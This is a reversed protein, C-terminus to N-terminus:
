AALINGRQTRVAALGREIQRLVVPSAKFRYRQFFRAPDDGAAHVSRAFMGQFFSPTVTYIDAPVVIRVEEAAGDAADLGFHARAALGREHGSLNRVEGGRTLDGLNIEM